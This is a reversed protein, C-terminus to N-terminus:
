EGKLIEKLDTVFNRITETDAEIELTDLEISKVSTATTEWSRLGSLKIKAPGAGESSTKVLDVLQKNDEDLNELVQKEPANFEIKTKSSNFLKSAEKLEDSLSENVRALNPKSFEFQLKEIRGDYRELMEWLIRAEYKPQPYFRLNYDNLKRDIAKEIIKLVSFSNGFSTKDSEIAILQIDPNNYFAVLCSPESEFFEQHFDKEIKITKKNALRILIFEDDYYEIKYNLRHKSSFFHLNEFIDAFFKNKNEVLESYTFNKGFLNFQSNSIPSIQYTFIDYKIM